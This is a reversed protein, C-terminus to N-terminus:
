NAELAPCSKRDANPLLTLVFIKVRLKTPALSPTHEASKLKIKVVMFIRASEPLKRLAEKFVARKRAM